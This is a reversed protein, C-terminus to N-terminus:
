RRRTSGIMGIRLANSKLHAYQPTRTVDFHDAPYFIVVLDSDVTYTGSPDIEYFKSLDVVAEISKGRKLLCYDSKEPNTRDVFEGLYRAEKGKDDRVRFLANRLRGDQPIGTPLVRVDTAGINSLRIRVRFDSVAECVLAFSAQASDSQVAEGFGLTNITLSVLGLVSFAIKLFPFRM